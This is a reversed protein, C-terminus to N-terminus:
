EEPYTYIVLMSRFWKLFDDLDVEYTENTGPEIM